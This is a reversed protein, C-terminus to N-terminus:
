QRAVTLTYAGTQAWWGPAPFNLFDASVEIVYDTTGRKAEGLWRNTEIEELLFRQGSRLNGGGPPHPYLRIRLKAGEVIPDEVDVSIDYRQGEQLKVKYFDHDGIFDITGTVSANDSELAAITYPTGEVDDNTAKALNLSLVYQGIPEDGYSAVQAIYVGTASPRFDLAAGQRDSGDRQDLFIGNEDRIVLHPDILEYEGDLGKLELRYTYGETLAINYADRDGSTELTGTVFGALPVFTTTTTSPPVEVATFDTEPPYIPMVLERATVRYIGTAGSFGKVELWLDSSVLPRSIIRPNLGGATDDRTGLMQGSDNRLVLAPDALADEGLDVTDVEFAYNVWNQVNLKFWDTDNADAIEGIFSQGAALNATSDMSGAIDIGEDVEPIPEALQTVSVTYAGTPTAGFSRVDLWFDGSVSPTYVIRANSGDGSDDDQDLYVNDADRLVLFPDELPSTDADERGTVTLEYEAGSVLKIRFFDRDAASDLTGAASGDVPVFGESELSHPLDSEGESVVPETEEEEIEVSASIETVSLQYSGTARRVGRAAVWYVGAYHPTFAISAKDTGTDALFSDAFVLYTPVPDYYLQASLNTLPSEDEGPSLEFLYSQGPTLYIRFWDEDEAFDINGSIIEGPAILAETDNHGDFDDFYTKSIHKPPGYLYQVGAIDDDSPGGWHQLYTYLKSLGGPLTSPTLPTLM